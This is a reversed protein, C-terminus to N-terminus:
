LIFAYTLVGLFLGIQHVFRRRFVVRGQLNDRLSLSLGRGHAGEFFCSGFVRQGYLRNDSMPSFSSHARTRTM